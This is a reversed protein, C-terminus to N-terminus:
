ERNERRNIMTLYRYISAESCGLQSAVGSVAGKILFAGRRDLEEVVAVREEQTLREVPVNSVLEAIIAHTMDSVNSHFREVPAGPPSHPWIDEPTLGGLALVGRSVAEYQQVDINICLMGLLEGEEQIFWTSSNLRRGDRTRGEYNAQYPEQRWTGESIIRLAHDTLPDGAQRGSVQGNEIALISQTGVDQLVIEWHQPCVQGLFRVLDRYKELKKAM